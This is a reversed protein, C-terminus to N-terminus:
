QVMFRVMGNETSLVRVISKRQQPTEGARLSYAVKDGGTDIETSSIGATADDRVRIITAQAPTGSESIVEVDREVM